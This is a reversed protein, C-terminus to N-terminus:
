LKILLRILFINAHKDPSGQCMHVTVAVKVPAPKIGSKSFLTIQKRKKKKKKKNAMLIKLDQECTPQLQEGLSLVGGNRYQCRGFSVRGRQIECEGAEGRHAKAIHRCICRSLLNEGNYHHQNATPLGTARERERDRERDRCCRGESPM